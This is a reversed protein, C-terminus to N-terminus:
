LTHKRIRRLAQACSQTSSRLCRSDSKPVPSQIKIRQCRCYDFGRPHLQRLSPNRHRLAAAAVSRRGVSGDLLFTLGEFDICAATATGIIAAIIVCLETFNYDFYSNAVFYLLCINLVCM